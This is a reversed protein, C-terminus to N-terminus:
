IIMRFELALCQKREATIPTTGPSSVLQVKVWPRSIGELNQCSGEEGWERKGINLIIILHFPQVKSWPGTISELSDEGGDKGGEEELLNGEVRQELFKEEERPLFELQQYPHRARDEGAKLQDM